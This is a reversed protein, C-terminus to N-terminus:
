GSRWRAGGDQSHEECKLKVIQPKNYFVSKPNTTFYQRPTQQLISDQPKNYFGTRPNTTFDQSPTQQLIM